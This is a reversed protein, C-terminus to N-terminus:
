LSSDEDVPPLNTPEDPMADEVEPHSLAEELAEISGEVVVSQSLPASAFKVGRAQLREILPRLADEGTTRRQEILAKRFDSRTPFQSPHLTGNQAHEAPAVRLVLRSRDGQGLERLKEVIRRKAELDM